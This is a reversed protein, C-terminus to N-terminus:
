AAIAPTPLGHVLLRGAEPAPLPRSLFFGQAFPCGMERLAALQVEDEIGEAVTAMGLSQGLQVITRVLAIDERDGGGLRDVFSRDIKLIEMPFRRLYALSSYGTGFDDMALTVGLARVRQLQALNEDTDTLLVSETMELRLRDARMGTEALVEAVTEALDCHEFQRVSVNVAMSLDRDAGAGWAVAQRCAEALVWRGLPVILGTAEAIGIFELPSVMGRTPHHWRVLAEFGVILGSQLDVTPQYHLALEGRELAVRLDAELQLREVLVNHMQPDYSAVGGGGGSKAKYMALDANRLLQDTDDADAGSALGISAGVHLERGGVAVPESIAAVIRRGVAEADTTAAISQVLVAFEDGGFRAVTDVERVTERIRAAVRVLLEDGAAHGLSDNVEKFGDLDLFLIAVEARPGAALAEELRERFLARSALGTLGDHYAAHLLQDQLEKADHIDRTNLVFGGVAPDDLLNTITMEALRVSGDFHRLHVELVTSAYLEHRVSDIAAAIRPGADRGTVETLRHGLLMSAPYGFIREVSDSQYRITSDSSIIAVSDSSQQVLARFRQESAHLETTRVSVRAELYRTLHRNERLTILQRALVLVILITRSWAFFADAHGTRAFWVVSVVIAAVVAAYPLVIAFPREAEAVTDREVREAVQRMPLRAALLVLAFGAFWGVDLLGGTNYGGQLSTFVYVSDTVCIIVMAAGILLPPGYEEGQRRLLALMHLMVTILVVDGLPYALMVALGGLSNGSTGILPSIVLLWVVLLLSTAIMLGDVVSRVRHALTQRAVPAFMLAATFFPMMAVYSVDAVSPFPVEHHLVSEQWTWIGQGLSWSLLGVAMGYWFGRVRGRRRTGRLVCAGAAALTLLLTGVNSVMRTVTDGGLGTSMWVAFVAVLGLVVATGPRMGGVVVRVRRLSM